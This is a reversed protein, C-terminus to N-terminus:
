ADKFNVGSMEGTSALLPLTVAHNPELYDGGWHLGIVSGTEVDIVCSGSNGGLTTCDHSFSGNQDESTLYGPALRKVDYIGEFIRDMESADNREPDASPYGVVCVTGGRRVAESRLQLPLPKPLSEATDSRESVTLLALDIGSSEPFVHRIGTIEFVSRASSGLERKFDIKMSIGPLFELADGNASYLFEIVHRNTMILNQGVVFGTGAPGGYAEPLELRGVSGLMALLDPRYPALRSWVGSPVEFKGDEVLLVPRDFLVSIAELSGIERGSLIAGEGDRAIRDFANSIDITAEQATREGGLFRRVLPDKMSASALREGMSRVQDQTAPGISQLVSEM